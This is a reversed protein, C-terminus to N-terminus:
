ARHIPIDPDDVSFRNWIVLEFVSAPRYNRTRCHGKENLPLTSFASLEMQIGRRRPLRKLLQALSDRLHELEGLAEACVDHIRCALLQAGQDIEGGPKLIWIGEDGPHSDSRLPAREM